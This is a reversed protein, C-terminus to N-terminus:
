FIHLLEKFKILAAVLHDILNKAFEIHDNFNLLFLHMDLNESLCRQVATSDLLVQLAPPTHALGHLDRRGHDLLLLLGGVVRFLLKRMVLLLALAFQFFPLPRAFLLFSAATPLPCLSVVGIQQLVEHFVLEFIQEQLLLQRRSQRHLKLLHVLEVEQVLAHQRLM